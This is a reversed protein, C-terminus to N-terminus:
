VQRLALTRHGSSIQDLRFVILLGRGSNHEVIWQLIKEACCESNVRLVTVFRAVSVHQTSNWYVSM